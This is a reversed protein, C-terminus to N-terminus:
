SGPLYQKTGHNHHDHYRNRGRVRKLLSAQELRAELVSLDTLFLRVNLVRMRLTYSVRSINQPRILNTFHPPSHAFLSHAHSHPSSTLHISRTSSDIFVLSLSIFSTQYSRVPLYFLCSVFNYLFLSGQGSTFLERDLAPPSRSARTWSDRQAQPQNSSGKPNINYAQPM